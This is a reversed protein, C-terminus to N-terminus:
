WALKRCTFAEAWRCGAEIGRLRLTARFTDADYWGKAQQSSFHSLLHRVKAEAQSDTLRVFANPRLVDGDWKPIEMEAITAGRFTQWALEAAARHDQHRDELGPVLVLDPGFGSLHDSAWDKLAGGQHPLYGDRFEGFEVRVGSAGELLEAASARAEAQRAGGGTLVAWLVETRPREELLRLLSGGAGIEADDAHASLVCLRLPRQRGLGPALDFV